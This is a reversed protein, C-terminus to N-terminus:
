VALGYEIGAGGMVQAFRAETEPEVRIALTDQNSLYVWPAARYFEAAAAFVGGGLEPTVGEAALLAPIEPRGGRMHLELDQLIEEMELPRPEYAVTMEWGAVLPQLARALDAEEGVVRRPRHPKQGTGKPPQQMAKTMVRLLEEAAPKDGMVEMQQLLDPEPNYILVIFPRYPTDDEPTIWVRMQHVAVVWTEAEQPLNEPARSKGRPM